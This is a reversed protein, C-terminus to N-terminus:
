GHGQRLIRPGGGPATELEPGTWSGACCADPFDGKRVMRGGGVDETSIKFGLCPDASYWLAEM